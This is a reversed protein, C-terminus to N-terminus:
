VSEAQLSDLYGETQHYLAAYSEEVGSRRDALATDFAHQSIADVLAGNDAHFAATAIYGLERAGHSAFFDPNEELIDAPNRTGLAIITEQALPGNVTGGGM